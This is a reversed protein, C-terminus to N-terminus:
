SDEEAAWRFADARQGPNFFKSERAFFPEALDALLHEWRTDGVIAMRRIKHHYTKGFKLDAGWAGPSERKFQELDLVLGISEQQKLLAEVEESLERYDDKSIEGVARVSLVRETSETSKEIVEPSREIQRGM